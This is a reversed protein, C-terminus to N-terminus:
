IYVLTVFVYSANTASGMKQIRVSYNDGVNYSISGTATIQTMNDTIAASFSTDIGDQQLYFTWGNGVGPSANIQVYMTTITSARAFSYSANGGTTTLGTIGLYYNNNLTTGNANLFIQNGLSTASSQWLTGTGTSTLIQGSTGATNTGDYLQARVRIGVGCDMLGNCLIGGAGSQILRGNGTTIRVNTDTSDGVQYISLEKNNGTRQIKYRGTADGMQIICSNTGSTANMNLYTEITPDGSDIDTEKHITHSNANTQIVNESGININVNGLRDGIVNFNGNTIGLGYAGGYLDIHDPVSIDSGVWDGMTIDKNNQMTLDGNLTLNNVDLTDVTFTGATIDNTIVNNAYISYENQGFLRNISM